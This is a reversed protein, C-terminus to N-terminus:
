PPLKGDLQGMLAETDRMAKEADQLSVDPMDIRQHAAKDFAFASDPGGDGIRVATATQEVRIGGVETLQHLVAGWDTVCTRGGMLSWYRCTQGAFSGTEDTETGGGRELFQRGFAQAGGAERMAQVMEAHMPNTMVTRTGTALDVTYTDAGEFLLRSRVAERQGMATMVSDELMVRRAGWDRVHETRTGTQAGSLTYAVTFAQRDYFRDKPGGAATPAAAAPTAAATEKSADPSCAALALVGASVVAIRTLM